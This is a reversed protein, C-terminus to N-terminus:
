GTVAMEGPSGSRVKFGRYYVSGSEDQRMMPDSNILEALYNPDLVIEGISLGSQIRDWVIEHLAESIMADGGGLLAARQRVNQKHSRPRIGAVFILSRLVGKALNPGLPRHNFVTGKTRCATM